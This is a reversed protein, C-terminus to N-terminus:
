LSVLSSLGAPCLPLLSLSFAGWIGMDTCRDMERDAAAPPESVLCSPLVAQSYIVAPELSAM